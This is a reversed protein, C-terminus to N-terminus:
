PIAHEEATPDVWASTGDAYHEHKWIPLRRKVEDITWRAAAFAAGRHPAAAVVVVALDGVRLAGVRHRVAVAADFREEAEAIVRAAEAEVMPAYCSYDLGVVERGRHVDRVTGVFSVVGGRSRDTVSALLVSPDLPAQGLVAVDAV